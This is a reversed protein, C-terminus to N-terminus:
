KPVPKIIIGLALMSSILEEIDNHAVAVSTDYESAICQAAEEVSKGASLASWIRSGTENMRLYDGTSTNLFIAEQGITRCLIDKAAVVM